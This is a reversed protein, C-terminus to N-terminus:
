NVPLLVTDIAHLVGNSAEIDSVVIRAGNVRMGSAEDIADIAVPGNLTHATIQLGALEESTLRRGAIVHMRLLMALQDRNEPRMLADVTSVPLKAFAADTPAFITYPGDSELAGALGVSEAAAVLITFSGDTRAVELVNAQARANPVSAGSPQAGGTQGASLLLLALLASPVLKMPGIKRELPPWAAFFIMLNLAYVALGPARNRTM